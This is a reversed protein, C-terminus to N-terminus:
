ASEMLTRMEKAAEMRQVKSRKADVQESITEKFAAIREHDMSKSIGIELVSQKPKFNSILSKFQNLAEEKQDVQDLLSPHIAITPRNESFINKRIYNM